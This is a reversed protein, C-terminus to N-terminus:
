SDGMIFNTFNSAVSANGPILTGIDTNNHLVTYPGGVHVMGPHLDSSLDNPNVLDYM